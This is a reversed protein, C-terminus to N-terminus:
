LSRRSQDETEQRVTTPSLPHARIPNVARSFFIGAMVQGRAQCEWVSAIVLELSNPHRCGTRSREVRVSFGLYTQVKFIVSPWRSAKPGM